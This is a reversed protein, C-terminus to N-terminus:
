RPATAGLASSQVPCNPLDPTPSVTLYAILISLDSIDITGSINVNAEAECPLVPRPTTTLYAILLNLDSLSIIDTADVNGTTGVCCSAGSVSYTVPILMPGDANDLGIVVITDYYTGPAPVSNPFVSLTDPNGTGMSRTLSLWSQTHRANWLVTGGAANTILISQAPPIVSSDSHFALQTQSAQLHVASALTQKLKTISNLRDTGQGVGWKVIVQQSDGPAMNFPGISAMMRRDAPNADVDGTGTVPDGSQQFRNTLGSGPPFEYAIMGSGTKTLGQMYGYTEVPSNPDTGNIYKAFAMVAINRYNPWIQGFSIATDGPSQVIPGQVLRLGVAPPRAGYSLDANTGNYNYFVGAVTDCGVLDDSAGGLDPDAWMSLFLDAINNGGKNHLDYRMYICNGESGTAIVEPPTATFTLSDPTTFGKMTEIRFVTGQEPCQLPSSDPAQFPPSVGANWAVLVVRAMIEHENDGAYTNALMLAEAADYGSTGPTTDSPRTWYLWDTYPDDIDSSVSHELDGGGTTPSGWSELGYANNDGDDVVWSVLQYDDSPDDPTGEGIDWLEFPVWFVNGDNFAEYAYSGNVGPNSPSGTFRMEYDHKGIEVWRTGDRTVRSVFASYSGRTGGGDTGGNDATHIAWRQGSAQMNAPPNSSDPTPFGISGFAASLASDLPGSGSAVITFSKFGVGSGTVKVKLGDVVSYNDDGSFNTQNDLLTVGTTRNVLKWVNGMVADERIEVLYDNGTIAYPDV